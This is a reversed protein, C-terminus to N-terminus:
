FGGDPRENWRITGIDARFGASKKSSTVQWARVMKAVVAELVPAIALELPEQFNLRTIFKWRFFRLFRLRRKQAWSPRAMKKSLRPTM